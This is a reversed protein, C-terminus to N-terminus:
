PKVGPSFLPNRLGCELDSIFILFLIPGSVSGQPVGSDCTELRLLMWKCMSAPKQKEVM